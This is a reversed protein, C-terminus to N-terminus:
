RGVLSELRELSRELDRTDPAPNGRPHANRAPEVRRDADGDPAEGSRAAERELRGTSIEDRRFCM